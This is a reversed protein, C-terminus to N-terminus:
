RRTQGEGRVVFKQTTLAELGMPGFAHIKSTSIGIEAGLGLEGGDNFRTSANVLVCSSDVERLFREARGPDRTAIAETHRSGYREIHDIAQDISDVVRIALILALYEAHWDDETASLAGPVLTRTTADGRLEVGAERLRAALPPLLEGAIQRHVLLTELANCVGPRQVKANYCIDIAQQLDAGDDVYLHCIGKYHRVVPVRAHETVFRILGEGGRPIALDVLEDEALLALMAARDTTPVLQVADEPLGARALGRRVATAIAASSDFAESGPRLIVANGAKVCLAASDATVNPRAEYIILIVGLPVRMRGVLLGNPRREPGQMAGVPDPLDAVERVAREMATLRGEDLQLRDRFAATVGAEDARRLDRENAKSIAQRAALLEGAMAELAANKTATPALGVVRAAGRARHCLERM